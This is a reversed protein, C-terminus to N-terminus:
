ADLMVGKVLKGVTSKSVGLVGAIDRVTLGKSRLELTKERLEPTVVWPEKGFRVGRAKAAAMGAKVRQILVDREIQALEAFFALMTLRLPNERGMMFIPQSVSFFEVDARIWDMLLYMLNVADRSLRDIKFVVVGSVEGAEVARKMAQFGVRKSESDRSGSRQDQYIRVQDPKKDPPLSAIWSEVAYRQSDIDQDETSVRYYCAWVRPNM